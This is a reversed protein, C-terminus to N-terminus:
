KMAHAICLLATQRETIDSTLLSLAERIPSAGTDLKKKLGEIKLKEGPKLVGTVILKRLTQYTRQTVSGDTSTLEIPATNM